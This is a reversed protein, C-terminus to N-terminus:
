VSGGAEWSGRAQNLAANDSVQFAPYNQPLPERHEAQLPGARETARGAKHTSFSFPIRQQEAVLTQMGGSATAPADATLPPAHAEIVHTTAGSFYKDPSGDEGGNPMETKKHRQQKQTTGGHSLWGPAQGRPSPSTFRTSNGNIPSGRGLATGFPSTVMQEPLLVPTAATEARTWGPQTLVKPSPAPFRHPSPPPPVCGGLLYMMTCCHAGQHPASAPAGHPLLDM